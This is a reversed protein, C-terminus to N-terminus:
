CNLKFEVDNLLPSQLVRSITMSGRDWVVRTPIPIEFKPKHVNVTSGSGGAPPCSSLLPNKCLGRIIPSIFVSYKNTYREPM